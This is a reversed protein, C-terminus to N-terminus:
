RALRKSIIHFIFIFLTIVVFLAMANILVKDLGNTSIDLFYYPYFDSFTGRILVYVIYIVPYLLWKLLNSFPAVGKTEYLYWFLITGLPVLTHHIESTILDLGEPNWIPRLTIHYIIGVFTMIAALATLTGPKHWFGKGDPKLVMITFFITILLNSLITFYSLFRIVSEYAPVEETQIRVTLRTILTAWGILALVLALNKKM